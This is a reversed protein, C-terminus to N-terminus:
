GKRMDYGLSCVTNIEQKQMGKQLARMKAAIEKCKRVGAQYARLDIRNMGQHYHLDKRLEKILTKNRKM